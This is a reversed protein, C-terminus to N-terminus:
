TVLRLVLFIVSSVRFVLATQTLPITKNFSALRPVYKNKRLIIPSLLLGRCYILLSVTLCEPHAARKIASLLTRTCQFQEFMFRLQGLKNVFNLNYKFIAFLLWALMSQRISAQFFDNTSM